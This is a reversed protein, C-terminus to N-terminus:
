IFLAEVGVSAKGVNEKSMFSQICHQVQGSDDVVVQHSVQDKLDTKEHDM